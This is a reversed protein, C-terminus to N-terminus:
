RHSLESLAQRDLLEEWRGKVARRIHEQPIREIWREVEDGSFAEGLELEPLRAFRRGRHVSLYLADFLAKEPVAIEFAGLVGYPEHGGSLEPQILHFEYTGVPTELTSRRRPTIVQVVRVIQDIMGHLELASLLSVYAEGPDDFLFPVVAYPSFDPHDTMAWLGRRVRTVMEREELRALDRSANSLRVEAAEAVEATTFIPSIPLIRKWITELVKSM